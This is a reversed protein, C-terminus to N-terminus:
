LDEFQRLKSLGVTHGVHIDPATPDFGEKIILPKQSSTSRELKERLADEPILEVVGRKLIELQENVSAM